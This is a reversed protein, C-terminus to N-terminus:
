IQRIGRRGVQCGARVGRAQHRRSDPDAHWDGRSAVLVLGRRGPLAAGARPRRAVRSSGGALRGRRLRSRSRGLRHTDGTRRGACRGALRHHRQGPRPRVAAGEQLALLRGRPRRVVVPTSLFMSAGRTKWLAQATWAGPAAAPRIQWAACGFDYDSTLLRDGVVLPTVITNDQSVVYAFQWLEQGTRPDLAVIKRKTKFILQERGGITAIVPSAGMAPGDGTWRWVERGDAVQLAVMAGSGAGDVNKRDDGGLHVFCLPGWVFPSAAAGFYPFRGRFEPGSERRWLLRGTAADWASLVSTVGFTFLRGDAVAPTAYPGRGHAGASPDQVFPADYSSSWIPEGSALRLASVVEKEGQRSHIWVRDGAVVPGSYGGGVERVWERALRAPWGAPPLPAAVRGDRNVGRWHPWDASGAAQVGIALGGVGLVALGVVVAAASVRCRAVSLDRCDLPHAVADEPWSVDQVAVTM